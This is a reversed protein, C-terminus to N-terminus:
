NDIIELTSRKRMKASAANMITRMAKATAGNKGIVKGLDEKAVRLELLISSESRVETVDVHEPKDVISRGITTILEKM